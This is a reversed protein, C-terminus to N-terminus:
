QQHQEAVAQRALRRVLNKLLQYQHRDAAPPMQLGAPSIRTGRQSAVARDTALPGNGAKKVTRADTTAGVHADHRGALQQETQAPAPCPGDRM